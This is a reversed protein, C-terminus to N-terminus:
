VSTFIVMLSWRTPDLLTFRTERKTRIQLELPLMGDLSRHGGGLGTDFTPGDQGGPQVEVTLSPVRLTTHLSRYGNPKPAEIYDKDREEIAEWLGKAIERVRYCAQRSVYTLDAPVLMRM